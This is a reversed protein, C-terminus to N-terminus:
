TLILPKKGGSTSIVVENLKTCPMYVVVIQVHKCYKNPHSLMMILRVEMMPQHVLMIKIYNKKELDIKSSSDAINEIMLTIM